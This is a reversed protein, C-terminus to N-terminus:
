KGTAPAIRNRLFYFRQRSRYKGPSREIIGKAELSKLVASGGRWGRAIVLGADTVNIKANEALYNVILKESETLTSYVDPNIVGAVETRVYLRRHEVNNKLTVTIKFTGAQKQVFIPDPLNSQRMEDRMRRTGEFACQVYDFYFLSWMLHPNRPNHAEYVTDATTPPMFAGPSEVILKDEFMKVFVNMNKLNYSRHVAANVIAELWAGKPYEPKNAFKGDNGLRVFSRVQSAIYKEVNALQYPLPGDFVEDSIVNQREGFREETGEYRVVRIFAGPAVARSDKAFLIACALNPEFVNAKKKGLKSLMLVDVIGYPRDLRRKTVYQKRFQELLVADFEDPFTLSVAESEVDLEGKQLRVERKEPETLRRKEDGERVFADGHVTEVLKDDRYHVRMVIVFDREDKANRVEVDKFEIRADPCLKRVARLETLHKADTGKCGLIEGANSVGIFVVGGSPQTNAWMSLYDALDRQSVAARKREVRHDEKFQRITEATCPIFIDDPTWLQQLVPASFTFEFSTQEEGM